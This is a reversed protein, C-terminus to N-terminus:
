GDRCPGTPRRRRPLLPGGLLTEARGILTGLATADPRKLIFV